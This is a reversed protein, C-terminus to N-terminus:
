PLLSQSWLGQGWGQRQVSMYWGIGMLMGSYFMVKGVWLLVWGLPPGQTRQDRQWLRGFEPRGGQVRHAQLWQGFCKSLAQACALARLHRNPPCPVGTWLWM